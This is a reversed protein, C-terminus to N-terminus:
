RPQGEQADDFLWAVARPFEKRWAAENHKAKM